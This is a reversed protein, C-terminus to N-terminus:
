INHESPYDILGINSTVCFLRIVIEQAYNNVRKMFNNLTMAVLKVRTENYLQQSFYKFMGRISVSVSQVWQQARALVNEFPEFQAPKNWEPQQKVVPLFTTM